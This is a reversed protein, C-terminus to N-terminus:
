QMRGKSEPTRAVANPHAAGLDKVMEARLATFFSSATEIVETRASASSGLEAAAKQAKQTTEVASVAVRQFTKNNALKEVVVDEVMSKLWRTVFQAM